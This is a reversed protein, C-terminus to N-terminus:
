FDHIRVGRIIIASKIGSIWPVKFVRNRLIQHAEYYQLSPRLLGIKNWPPLGIGGSGARGRYTGYSGTAGLGQEMVDLKNWIRKTTLGY